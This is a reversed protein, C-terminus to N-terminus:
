KQQFTSRLEDPSFLIPITKTDTDFVYQLYINNRALTSVMKQLKPGRLDSAVTSKIQDQSVKEFRKDSVKVYYTFISDGNKYECKTLTMGNGIPSNPNSNVSEVLNQLTETENSSKKCGTMAVLVIVSLAVIIANKM